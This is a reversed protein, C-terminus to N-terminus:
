ERRVHRRGGGGSLHGPEQLSPERRDHVLGAHSGERLGLSRSGWCNPEGAESSPKAYFLQSWSSDSNVRLSSYWDLGQEAALRSGEFDDEWALQYGSSSDPSVRKQSYGEPTAPEALVDREDYV